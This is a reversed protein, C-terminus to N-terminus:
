ETSRSVAEPATAVRAKRGAYIMFVVAANAPRNDSGANGANSAAHFQQSNSAGILVSGNGSSAPSTTQLIGPVVHTHEGVQASQFSGTGTAAGGASVPARPGKDRINTPDAGRLFVGRLDPLNFSVGPATSGWSNGIADHLQKHVLVNLAAGDCILWGAAQMRKIFDTQGSAFARIEGVILGATSVANAEEVARSIEQTRRPSFPVSVSTANNIQVTFSVNDPDTIEYTYGLGGPGPPVQANKKHVSRSDQKVGIAQFNAIQAVDTTSAPVHRVWFFVFREGVQRVGATVGTTLLRVLGETRICEVWASAVEPSAFSYAAARAQQYSLSDSLRSQSEKRWASREDQSFNGEVKVPVGYVPFGIGFGAERADSHTRFESSYIYQDVARRYSDNSAYESQNFVGRETIARCDLPAEQASASTVFVLSLVLVAAPKM